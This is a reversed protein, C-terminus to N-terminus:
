LPQWKQSGCGDAGYAGSRRHTWGPQRPMFVTVHCGMRRGIAQGDSTQAQRDSARDVHACASHLSSEDLLCLRSGALSELGAEDGLCYELFRAQKIM